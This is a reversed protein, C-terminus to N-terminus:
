GCRAAAESALRDMKVSYKATMEPRSHGLCAQAAEISMTDRIETAVTHRLSYPVYASVGAKRCARRVATALYSISVKVLLPGTDPLRRIILQSKPGFHLKRSLGRHSNKHKDLDAVWIEGTTDIMSKSLGILESPRAGTTRLLDFFDRYKQSLFPRVADIDADAVAERRKNDHAACKGRKLPTISQMAQWTGVNVMGNECGWKLVCRLKNTMKNCYVRSCGREIFKTRVAKLDMPTLSDITVHGFLPIFFKMASKYCSVEASPKGNATTYYGVAYQMFALCLESITASTPTIVAITKAVPGIPVGSIHKAMLEHYKVHSAESGYPGLYYSRGAIYVRAQGSQRHHGYIPIKSKKM